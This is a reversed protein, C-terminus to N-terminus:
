LDHACGRVTRKRSSGDDHENRVPSPEFCASRSYRREVRHLAAVLVKPEEPDARAASAEEERAIRKAAEEGEHLGAERLCEAAKRFREAAREHIPASAPDSEQM